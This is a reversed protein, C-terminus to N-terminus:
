TNDEQKPTTRKVPNAVSALVTLARSMEEPSYYEIERLIHKLEKRFYDSDLGFTNNSM